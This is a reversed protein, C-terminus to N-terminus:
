TEKEEERKCPLKEIVMPLNHSIFPSLMTCKIGSRQSFDSLKVVLELHYFYHLAKAALFLYFYAQFICNDIM